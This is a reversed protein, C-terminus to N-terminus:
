AATGPTTPTSQSPPAANTRRLRNIEVASYTSVLFPLLYTVLIRAVVLATVQGSLVVDLQNILFQITGIVAAVLFARLFVPPYVVAHRWCRLAAPAAETGAFGFLAIRQCCDCRPAATHM